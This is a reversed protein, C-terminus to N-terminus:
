KSMRYTNNIGQSGEIIIMIIIIIDAWFVRTNINSFCVLPFHSTTEMRFLKGRM